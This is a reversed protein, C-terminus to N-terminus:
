QSHLPHNYNAIMVLYGIAGVVISFLLVVVFWGFAGGEESAGGGGGGRSAFMTVQM